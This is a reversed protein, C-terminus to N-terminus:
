AKSLVVKEKEKEVIQSFLAKVFEYDQSLVIPTNLDLTVSLQLVGGMEKILYTYAGMDNALTAKSGAPLSTVKYGEPMKINITYKNSKPFEFFIPYERTDDKFPNEIQAFFLMPSIFLEGNINEVISSSVAKYSRTMNPSLNDIDNVEFETIAVDETSNNISKIQEDNTTKFYKRRYEKAYHGGLREKVVANLKDDKIEAQVYTLKQSVYEPYLPVWNSTGDPRILRGQWNMAREPLLNVSSFPDTADMLYTAGNYEVAAIVYNFGYRTPFVPVGNDKTSVLIPNASLNASRLMSVLMLNIEAINGVGDKYANKVGVEPYYGLYSNWKVKSKVLSFIAAIKEEPNSKGVLAAALDEQYYDNRNLQNAFNDNEYISKTVADWDTSFQKPVGGPEKILALEWIARAKYNDINDVYGENKLPPINSEELTYKYEKYNVTRNETRGRNSDYASGYAATGLGSRGRIEIDVEKTDTQFNYSLAAQPNSYNNYVYFEPIKLEVFERKIPYESQLDIAEINTFPSAIKYEYEIICGPKLNPMTFKTNIYYNSVREEFIADSRLKEKEISGDVLTYTVGKLNLIDEKTNGYNYFKIKKSAVDFAEPNYIKIREFVETEVKFGDGQTYQYYTKYERYLITADADPYSPNQTEELEEKSVKGFKYNQSFLSTSLLLFAILLSFYKM